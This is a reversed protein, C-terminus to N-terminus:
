WARGGKKVSEEEHRYEEQASNMNIQGLCLLMLLSFFKISM